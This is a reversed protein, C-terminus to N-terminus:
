SIAACVDFSRASVKQLHFNEETDVTFVVRGTYLTTSPGSPYDTPFLILLSHGTLVRTETGDAHKTVMRTSGLGPTSLRQGTATNIFTFAPGTGALLIQAVNRDTDYFEKTVSNSGSVEITLPFTCATGAPFDLINTEAAASSTAGLVALVCYIATGLGSIKFIARRGM